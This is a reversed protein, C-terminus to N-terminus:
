HHREVTFRWIRIPADAPIGGKQRAIRLQEEVTDVGALDPLLLGKRARYEVIVGYKKVDLADAGAVLEPETLVDVSYVLADLEEKKVPPFRPDRLAASAANQLIEEAINKTTPEFTGICGRLEGDKKLSVFVGARESMESPLGQPLEANKGTHVITEIAHRALRVYDDEAARREEQARRELMEYREAFSRRVDERTVRLSVVGYGVGFPGQYSLKKIKLAQGDLAGAMMWFTRLGCEAAPEYLARDMRLLKLFDGEELYKMCAKDFRPGEPAFGYPGEPTLKHSLDGSAIFVARRGLTDVARAVCKGFNYHALPSLGSIGLRVVRFDRTHAHLFHLPIMVAHDLAANRGGVPGAEIGIEGAEMEIEKALVTDYRAAVTVEEAGFQAFSGEAEEGPAIHFYDAYMVTHPSAIIVTDPKQEAAEKMAREYANVTLQIKKEEGRGVEPLILPPHPLVYAALISM